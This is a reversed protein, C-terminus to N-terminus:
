QPASGMGRGGPAPGAPKTYSGSSRTSTVRTMQVPQGPTRWDRSQPLPRRGHDRAIEDPRLRRRMCVYLPCALDSLPCSAPYICTLGATKDRAIQAACEPAPRTAPPHPAVAAGPRHPQAGPGAPAAPRGPRAPARGADHGGGPGAARGASGRRHAAPQPRRLVPVLRRSRPRTPAPRWGRSCKWKARRCRNDPVELAALALKPDIVREGAPSRGSGTWWIGPRPTKSWPGRWTRPWRGALNGPGGLVTLILVKCRPYRERLQAAATLGDPGPLDIDVVAVDVRKGLAAPVIATADTVEAVVDIDDELNLVAALTDRLIQMDEAVLVRIVAPGAGPVAPDPGPGSDATVATRGM